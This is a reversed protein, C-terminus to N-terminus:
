KAPKLHLLVVAMDPTSAPSPMAYPDSKSPWGTYKTTRYLSWSPSDFLPIVPLQEIVITALGQVAAKQKAVDDTAEYEALLQDTKADKWRGYNGTAQQGIPKTLKSSLMSRYLYFPTPGAVAGRLTIDYDGKGVKAVWDQIAVGRVTMDVGVKDLDEKMLQAANVFDTYPSPVLLEFALKRSGYGAKALLDKAKTRDVAFSTDRYEAPVWASNAPMPLGSPHAADVYGREANTVLRQRDIALSVAQRVEVKDFPARATNVMLTNLGESPFYHKNHRPDDREYIKKLDPVFASAWDIEGSQLGTQVASASYAPFKVVPVVPKGKWYKPNAAVQYVQSSFSSLTFPGTGVPNPNAFTALKKGAMLHKPVIGVQGALNWLKTYSTSPFTFVVTDKGGAKVASLEIGGKNLASDDLIAQYTFVVDDVTLPKGDSWKVGDRLTVTLTRGEDSWEYATALWPTIDNPKLKNFFLLPEYFLGTTGTNATTAFPNFNRQWSGTDNIHVVLPSGGAGADGGEGCGALLAALGVGTAGLLTRRSLGAREASM